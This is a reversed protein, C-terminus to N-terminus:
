FSFSKNDRTNHMYIEYIQLYLKYFKIYNMLM